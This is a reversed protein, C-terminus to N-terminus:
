EVCGNEIELREDGIQARTDIDIGTQLGPKAAAGRIDRTALRAFFVARFAFCRARASKVVGGVPEKPPSSPALRFENNM